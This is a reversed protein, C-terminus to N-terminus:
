WWSITMLFYLM